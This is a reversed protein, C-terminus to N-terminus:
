AIVGVAGAVELVIQFANSIRNALEAPVLRGPSEKEILTLLEALREAVRRNCERATEDLFRKLYTLDQRTTTLLRAAQVPERSLLALKSADSPTIVGVNHVATNRLQFAISLSETRWRQDAPQQGTSPFLWFQGDKFPDALLDKFRKSVEHVNLWTSSECLSAGLSGARFHYALSGGKIQFVNLRDDAVVCALCEVCEAAMEKLFREFVEVLSVLAMGYLMRLHRDGASRYLGPGGLAKDVYALANWIDTGTRRYHLIPSKAEEPLPATHLPIDKIKRALDIPPRPM